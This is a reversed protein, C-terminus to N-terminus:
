RVTFFEMREIDDPTLPNPRPNPRFKEMADQFALNAGFGVTFPHMERYAALEGVFAAAKLKAKKSTEEDDMIHSLYQDADFFADARPFEFKHFQVSYGRSIRKKLLLHYAV